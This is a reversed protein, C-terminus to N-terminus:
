KQGIGAAQAKTRFAKIRATTAETDWDFPIAKVDEARPLIDPYKPKVGPRGFFLLSGADMMSQTGHASRVFDIFLKATAPHPASAMIIAPFPVLVVGEKPIVQRTPLNREILSLSDKPSNLLTVSFEGSGVWDRGQSAKIHLTPKLKGLRALWEEGM